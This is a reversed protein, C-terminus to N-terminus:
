SKPQTSKPQLIVLAFVLCNTFQRRDETPMRGDVWTLGTAADSKEEGKRKGVFCFAFSRLTILTSRILFCGAYRSRLLGKKEGAASLIKRIKRPEKYMYKTYPIPAFFARHAGHMKQM